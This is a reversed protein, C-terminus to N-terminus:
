DIDGVKCVSVHGGTMLVNSFSSIDPPRVARWGRTPADAFPSIASGSSTVCTTMFRVPLMREAEVIRLLSKKEFRCFIVKGSHAKRNQVSFYQSFSQRLWLRISPAGFKLLIGNISLGTEDVADPDSAISKM